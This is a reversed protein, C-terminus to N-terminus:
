NFSPMSETSYTMDKPSKKKMEEARMEDERANVKARVHAIQTKSAKHTVEHVKAQYDEPLEVGNSTNAAESDQDEAAKDEAQEDDLAPKKM